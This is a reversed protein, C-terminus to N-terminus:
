FSNPTGLCPFIQHPPNRGRRRPRHLPPPPRAQPDGRAQAQHLPWRSVVVNSTALLPLRRLTIMATAAIVTHRSSTSFSTYPYNRPRLPHSDPRARTVVIISIIRSPYSSPSTLPFNSFRLQLHPRQALLVGVTFRQGM